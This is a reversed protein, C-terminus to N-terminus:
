LSAFPISGPDNAACVCGPIVAVLEMIQARCICLSLHVNTNTAGNGASKVSDRLQPSTM